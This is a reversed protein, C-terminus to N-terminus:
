VYQYASFLHTKLSQGVTSVASDRIDDRLTNFMTPGAVAFARRGYTSLRHRPITLQHRAASRLHRLTAVQSVPICCNSLYMPAKGLLCWHTLVGLKYNVREPIDLWHLEHHMLRSLGQDFKKTDSVVRAAANLVRQLRATTTKPATALIANCYDVRSPVLTAASYADLSRRIHRLQYWDTRLM